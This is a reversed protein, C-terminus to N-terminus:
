VWYWVAFVTALLVVSVITIAWMHNPQAGNGEFQDTIQTGFVSILVVCLWYIPAVYRRRTFQVVMTIVLVGFTVAMVERSATNQAAVSANDGGAWASTLNDSFTEGVTTCLVKILWFYLTVEPVKNLMQRATLRTGRLPTSVAM